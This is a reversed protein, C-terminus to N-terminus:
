FVFSPLWRFEIFCFIQFFSFRKDNGYNGSRQEFKAWSVWSASHFKNVTVARKFLRRISFLKEKVAGPTILSTTLSSSETDMRKNMEKEDKQAFDLTEENLLSYYSTTEAQSSDISKEYISSFPRGIQQQSKLANEMESLKKQEYMAWSQKM